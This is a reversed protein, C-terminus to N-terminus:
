FYNQLASELRQYDTDSYHFFWDVTDNLRKCLAEFEDETRILTINLQEAIHELLLKNASETDSTSLKELEVYCINGASVVSATINNPLSYNKTEREGVKTLFKFQSLLKVMGTFQEPEISQSVETRNHSGFDGAKSVVECKGNTVRIRIDLKTDNVTGFLMVSLRKTESHLTGLEALKQLITPKAEISLEARLELEIHHEYM